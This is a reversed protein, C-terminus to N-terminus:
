RLHVLGGLSVRYEQAAEDWRVSYRSPYYGPEAVEEPLVLAATYDPRSELFSKAIMPEAFILKGDWTGFIFTRTFPEGNLEPSTPDVWHAGMMPVAGPIAVYGAPIRAPQPYREAKADFAPDERTIARREKDTITNFHFDFHPTDYIGPPEHGGPNWNVAVHRFPTPSDAPLELVQEFSFHHPEIEIGGPDHAAPLGHLAEASMAVGVEVPVSGEMLVYTRMTGHGLPAEPGYVSSGNPAAAGSPDVGILALAGFGVTLLTAALLGWATASVRRTKTPHTQSTM